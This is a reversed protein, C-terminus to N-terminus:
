FGVNSYMTDTIAEDRLRILLEKEIEKYPIEGEYPLNDKTISTVDLFFGGKYDWDSDTSYPDPASYEYNVSIVVREGSNTLYEFEYEFFM